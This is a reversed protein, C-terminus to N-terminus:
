ETEELIRKAREKNRTEKGTTSTSLDTSVAILELHGDESTETIVRDVEKFASNLTEIDSRTRASALVNEVLEILENEREQMIEPMRRKTLTRAGNMEEPEGDKRILFNELHERYHSLLKSDELELKRDNEVVLDKEKLKEVNLSVSGKSLSTKETLEKRRM